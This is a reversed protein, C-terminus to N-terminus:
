KERWKVNCTVASHPASQPTANWGWENGLNGRSPENLSDNVSLPMEPEGRLGERLGTPM